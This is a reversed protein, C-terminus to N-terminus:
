IISNILTLLKKAQKSVSRTSLYYSTGKKAKVLANEYNNVVALVIEVPCEEDAINLYELLDEPIGDLKTTIVPVGTQIYESIKSPFSYKTYEGAISRLNILAFAQSQISLVEDNPVVGLYFINDNQTAINACWDRLPGEGCIVLNLDRSKIVPDLFCSVLKQIGYENNVGGTYVINNGKPLQVSLPLVKERELAISDVVLTNRKKFFSSMHKAIVVRGDAQNAMWVLLQNDITKFWRIFLPSRVGIRMFKPMDPICVIVKLGCIKKLLFVPILHPTHLAYLFIIKSSGERNRNIVSWRILYKFFAIIKLLGKVVPLNLSFPMFGRAGKFDWTKSKFFLNPNNSFSSAPVSGLINISNWRLSLLVRFLKKQYAHAAHQPFKENRMSSEFTQDDVLFGVFLLNSKSPKENM